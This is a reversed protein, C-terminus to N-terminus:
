DTPHPSLLAERAKRNVEQQAYFYADFFDGYELSMCEAPRPDSEMSGTRGAHGAILAETCLSKRATLSLTATPSVSPSPPATTVSAPAPDAGRVCGVLLAILAVVTTGAVATTRTNM